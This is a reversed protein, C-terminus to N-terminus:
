EHDTEEAAAAEAISSARHLSDVCHTSREGDAGLTITSFSMFRGQLDIAITGNSLTRAALGEVSQSSIPALEMGTTLVADAPAPMLQGTAPDRYARLGGIGVAAAPSPATTVEAAAAGPRDSDAGAAIAASSALALALALIVVNRCSM